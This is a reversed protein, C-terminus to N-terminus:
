CEFLAAPRGHALINQLLVLRTIAASTIITTIRAATRIVSSAPLFSASLSDLADILVGPEVGEVIGGAVIGGEEVPVTDIGGVRTGAVVQGATVGDGVVIAFGAATVLVAIGCTGGVIAGETQADDGMQTAFVQSM